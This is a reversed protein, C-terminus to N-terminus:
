DRRVEAHEVQKRTYCVIVGCAPYRVMGERQTFPWARV